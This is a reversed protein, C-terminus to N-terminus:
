SSPGGAPLLSSLLVQRDVKGHLSLPLSERIEIVSPILYSPLRQRLYARLALPTCGPSDTVVFALMAAEGIEPRNVTVFVQRVDPHTGLVHRVEGLEVRHGNIKVQDDDRGQFVLMGDTRFYALDGTHYLREPVGDIEYDVFRESTADPMGLYGPSLGPGALCVEGIEGAACLRGDRVLYARTNQIPKGIPLALEDPRLETVPYYTAFTTCETPGYVSVLKDPGYHALARGIHRLSHAEGGTLITEVSSLADLDNDVLTNFLATTLFVTTVGNDRVVHRLESLRIFGSPYLVCTGGNLLAGWIEFTAADFSIPALQLTVAHEDLRTYHAGSVLRTIGRHRIPVGKPLGTSGSTFNIYALDDAGTRTAPNAPYDDVTSSQAMASVPAVHHLPFRGACREPQDTVLWECEAIGFMVKLRDDPWSDDFPLYVAGCKLVALLTAILEPSRAVSVGVVEGARLGQGILFAALRNAHANLERYTMKRDRHVLAVADPDAEARQEFLDTASLEEPYPQETDVNALAHASRAEASPVLRKM